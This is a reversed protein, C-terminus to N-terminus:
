KNLPPLMVHSWRETRLVSVVDPMFARLGAEADEADHHLQLAGTDADCGSPGEHVPWGSGSWSLQGADVIARMPTDVPPLTASIIDELRICPINSLWILCHLHVTGRGHYDQARQVNRKRKGDQFELRAFYTVVTPKGEESKDALLHKTWLRDKRGGSDQRKGTLFGVVTEMLVHSLHMTEVAPLHLRVQLLKHLEDEIFRHYPFSWEFPALTVFLTPFGVQKQLDLLAAHWTQWFVPSFSNGGLAVRLSVGAANKAGGLRSWLWLDYVFHLLQPDSGYGLVPSLLKAVFSAKLSQRSETADDGEEEDDSSADEDAGGRKNKKKHKKKDLEQARHHIIDSLRLIYEKDDKIQAEEEASPLLALHVHVHEWMVLQIDVHM